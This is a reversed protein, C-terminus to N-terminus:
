SSSNSDSDSGSDSDVSISNGLISGSHEPNIATSKVSPKSLKIQVKQHDRIMNETGEKEHFCRYPRGAVLKSQGTTQWISFGYAQRFTLTNQSSCIDCFYPNEM